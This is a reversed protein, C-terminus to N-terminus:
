KVYKKISAKDMLSKIYLDIDVKILIQRAHVTVKGSAKDSLQSEVKLIHYGYKNRLLKNSVTNNPLSFIVQEIQPELEGKSIWGLDGGINVGAEDQTYQKALQSFDIGTKLALDLIANAKNKAEIVIPSSEQEIILGQLKDRELLPLLIKQKFQDLNLNYLRSVTKVAEEKGGVQAYIEEIAKNLEQDSVSANNKKLEERILLIAAERSFINNLAESQSINAGERNAEIATKLLKSDTLYEALPIKINNVKGASLNLTKAIFVAYSNNLGYKYILVSSVALILGLIIVLSAVVGIISKVPNGRKNRNVASKSFDAEPWKINNFDEKVKKKNLSAVPAPKSIPASFSKSKNAPIFLNEYEIKNKEGAKTKPTITAPKSFRVSAVTKGASLKVGGSKAAKKPSSVSKNKVAASNEIEDLVAKKM